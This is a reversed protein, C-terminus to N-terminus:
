GTTGLTRALHVAYSTIGALRGYRGLTSWFGSNRDDTGLKEYRQLSGRRVPRSIRSQGKRALSSGGCNKRLSKECATSTHSRTRWRTIPAMFGFDATPVETSEWRDAFRTALSEPDSPM